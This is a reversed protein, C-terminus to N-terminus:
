RHRLNEHAGRGGAWRRVRLRVEGASSGGGGGGFLTNLLWRWVPNDRQSPRLDRFIERTASAADLARLLGEEDLPPPPAGPPAPDRRHHGVLDEVRGPCQATVCYLYYQVARQAPDPVACMGFMRSIRGM